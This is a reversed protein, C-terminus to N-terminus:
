SRMKKHDKDLAKIIPVYPLDKAWVAEPFCYAPTLEKFLHSTLYKNWHSEDHYGAIIGVKHDQKIHEAMKAAAALYADRTGGQVGGCYYARREGVPVYATSGKPTLPDGWGGRWYGPHRVAVLGREDPLVRDTIESVIAMDVDMYYIVDSTIRNAYKTFWEYRMLTPYPWQMKPVPCHVSKVRNSLVAVPKDTFLYVTIPENPFFYQEIGQLLTPLFADYKGTAILLIGKTM